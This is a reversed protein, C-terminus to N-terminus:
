SASAPLWRRQLVHVVPLALSKRSRPDALDSAASSGDGCPQKRPQLDDSLQAVTSLVTKAALTNRLCWGPFGLLAVQNVWVPMLLCRSSLYVQSPVARHEAVVM